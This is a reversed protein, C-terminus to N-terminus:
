AMAVSRRSETQRQQKCGQGLLRERFPQSITKTWYIRHSYFRDWVKLESVLHYSRQDYTNREMTNNSSSRTYVYEGPLAIALNHYKGAFQCGGKMVEREGLAGETMGNYFWVAEEESEWLDHRQVLNM